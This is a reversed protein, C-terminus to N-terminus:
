VCGHQRRPHYPPLKESVRRIVCDVPTPFNLHVAGEKRAYYPENAEWQRKANANFRAELSLAKALREGYLIEVWSNLLTLIEDPYPDLHDRIGHLGWLALLTKESPVQTDIPKTRLAKIERKIKGKKRCYGGFSLSYALPTILLLFLILVYGIPLMFLQKIRDGISEEWEIRWTIDDIPSEFQIGDKVLRALFSNAATLNAERSKEICQREKSSIM